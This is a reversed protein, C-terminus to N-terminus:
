ATGYKTEVHHRDGLFETPLIGGARRHGCREAPDHGEQELVVRETEMRKVHSELLVQLRRGNPLPVRERNRPKARTFADGRYSLTM